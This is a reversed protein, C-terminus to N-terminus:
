TVQARLQRRSNTYYHYTPCATLRTTTTPAPPPVANANLAAPQPRAIRGRQCRGHLNRTIHDRHKVSYPHGKGGGAGAMRPRYIRTLSRVYFAQVKALQEM